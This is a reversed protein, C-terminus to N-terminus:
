RESYVQLVQELIQRPSGLERAQRKEAQRKRLKAIPSLRKLQGLLYSWWRRNMQAQLLANSPAFEASLKSPSIPETPVATIPAAAPAVFRRAVVRLDEQTEFNDAIIDLGAAMLTTRLSAATFYLTHARFFMYAPSCPRLANPVEIFVLGEDRLCSAISRLTEVPDPMHELVHFMSVLDFPHIVLRDFHREFTGQEVQVGLERVGFQAYGRNPELGHADNGRAQSLYVFEGSSAGIDLTRMGPAVSIVSSLWAWRQAANRAARLVHRLRPEDADKYVQRYDQEYFDALEEKVPLPDIRGLGCRDCQVTILRKRTKGDKTAVIKAQSEGCVPCATMARLSCGEESADAFYNTSTLVTPTM